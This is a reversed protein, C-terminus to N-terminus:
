LILFFLLGVLAALIYFPTNSTSNDNTVSGGVNTTSPLGATILNALQSSASATLFGTNGSRPDGVGPLTVRTMGLPQGPALSNGNTATVMLAGPSYSNTLPAAYKVTQNSRAVRNLTVPIFKLKAM